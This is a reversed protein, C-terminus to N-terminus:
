DLVAVVVFKTNDEWYGILWKRITYDYRKVMKYLRQKDSQGDPRKRLKTEKLLDTM